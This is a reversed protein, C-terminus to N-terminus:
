TTSLPSVNTFMYYLIYTPKCSSIVKYRQELKVTCLVDPTDVIIQTQIIKYICDM